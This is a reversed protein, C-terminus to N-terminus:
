EDRYDEPDDDAIINTEFTENELPNDISIEYSQDPTYEPESYVGLTMFSVTAMVLLKGLANKM